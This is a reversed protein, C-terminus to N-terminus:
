LKKKLVDQLMRKDLTLDAVIRKLQANEEEMECGRLARAVSRYRSGLQLFFAPGM